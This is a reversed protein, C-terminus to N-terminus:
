HPLVQPFTFLCLIRMLTSHNDCVCPPQPWLLVTQLFKTSFIYKQVTFRWVEQQAKRSSDLVAM